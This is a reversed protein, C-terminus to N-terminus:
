IPATVRKLVEPDVDQYHEPLQELFKYFRARLRTRLGALPRSSRAQQKGPAIAITSTSMIMESKNTAWLMYHGRARKCNIIEATLCSSHEHMCLQQCLADAARGREGQACADCWTRPRFLNQVLWILLGVILQRQWRHIATSCCCTSSRVPLTTSNPGTIFLALNIISIKVSIVFACIFGSIISSQIPYHGLQTLPRRVAMRGAM